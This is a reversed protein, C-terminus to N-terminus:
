SDSARGETQPKSHKTHQKIKSWSGFHPLCHASLHLCNQAASLLQFTMRFTYSNHVHKMCAATLGWRALRATGTVNAFDTAFRDGHTCDTRDEQHHHSRIRKAVHLTSRRLEGVTDLFHLLGLSVSDAPGLRALLSVFFDTMEITIVLIHTLGLIQEAIPNGGLHNRGVAFAPWLVGSVLSDAIEIAIFLENALGLRHEAIPHWFLLDVLESQMLAAYSRCSGGLLPQCGLNPQADGATGSFICGAKDTCSEKFM